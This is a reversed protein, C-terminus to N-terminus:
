GEPVFSFEQSAQVLVPKGKSTPPEFQWQGVAAVAAGAMADNTAKVAIPFRAKGTEDIYFVVVVSGSAGHENTRLSFAPMVVHRPTLLHDLNQPPCPQYAYRRDTYDRITPPTVDGYKQVVLVGNVNFQYTINAVSEVPRGNVRSPEFQWQQLVRVAEDAFGQHTYSTVLWDTLRGTADVRIIVTAEGHTIGQQMLRQPYVAELRKIVKLPTQLVTATSNDPAEAAHVAMLLAGTAGIFVLRPFITKM